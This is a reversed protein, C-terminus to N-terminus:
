RFDGSGQLVGRQKRDALKNLNANWVQHRTMGQQTGLVDLYHTIIALGSLIQERREGTAAEKDDRISKKLHGALRATEHILQLYVGFPTMGTTAKALNWCLENHEARIGQLSANLADAIAATYWWCDGLESQWHKRWEDTLKPAEETGCDVLEALEGVESVLGAITYDLERELPYIATTLAEAQYQSFTM